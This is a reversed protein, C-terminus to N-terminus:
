GLSKAKEQIGMAWQQAAADIEPVYLPWFDVEPAQTGDKRTLTENVLAQLGAMAPTATLIRHYWEGANIALRGAQSRKLVLIYSVPTNGFVQEAVADLVYVNMSPRAAAALGDVAFGVVNGIRAALDRLFSAQRYTINSEHDLSVFDASKPPTKPVERIIVDSENLPEM